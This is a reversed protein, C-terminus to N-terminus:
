SPPDLHDAVIGLMEHTLMPAAITMMAALFRFCRAMPLHEDQPLVDAVLNGFLIAHEGMAAVTEDDPEPTQKAIREAGQLIENTAATGFLEVLRDALAEAAEAERGADYISVAPM